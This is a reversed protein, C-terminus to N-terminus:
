TVCVQLDTPSKIYLFKGDYCSTCNAVDMSCTLCDSSCYSCVRVNSVNLEAVTIDVPCETVCNVTENNIYTYYTPICVTCTTSTNVCEFCPDACDLCDLSSLYTTPPCVDVCVSTNDTANVLSYLYISPAM